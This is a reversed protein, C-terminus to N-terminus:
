FTPKVYLTDVLIEPDDVCRIIVKVKDDITANLVAGPPPAPPTAASGQILWCPWSPNDPHAQSPQWTTGKDFSAEFGGAAAPQPSVAVGNLDRVILIPAWFYREHRHIDPM